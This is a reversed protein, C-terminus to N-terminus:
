HMGSTSVPQKEYIVEKNIVEKNLFERAFRPAGEGIIFDFNGCSLQFPVKVMMGRHATRSVPQVLPPELDFQMGEDALSGLFRGNFHNFFEGLMDIVLPTVVQQREKLLLGALGLIGGEDSAFGTFIPFEGEILQYVLWDFRTETIISAAGISVDTKVGAFRILSSIFLLFSERYVRSQRPNSVRGFVDMFHRADISDFAIREEESPVAEQRYGGSIEKIRELSFVGQDLLAQSLLLHDKNGEAQLHKLQSETLFGKEVALEEQRKGTEEQLTELKKAQESSIENSLVALMNVRPRLNKRHVLADRLQAPTVLEHKLLYNAFSIRYM